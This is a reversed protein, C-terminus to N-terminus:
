ALGLQLHPHVERHTDHTVYHPEPIPFHGPEPPGRKMSNAKAKAKGKAMAKKMGKRVAKRM